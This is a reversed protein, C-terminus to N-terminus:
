IATLNILWNDTRVTETGKGKEWNESVHMHAGNNPTGMFIWDTRLAEADLPLFYPRAYHRRLEGGIRYDCNSRDLYHFHSIPCNAFM